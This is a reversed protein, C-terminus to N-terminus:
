ELQSLCMTGNLKRETNGIPFVENTCMTYEDNSSCMTGNLKFMDNWKAPVCQEM